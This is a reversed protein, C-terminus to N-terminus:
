KPIASIEKDILTDWGNGYRRNLEGKLQLARDRYQDKKEKEKQEAAFRASAIAAHALAEAHERSQEGIRPAIDWACRLLELLAEKNKKDGFLYAKGKGLYAGLMLKAPPNPKNKWENIYQDARGALSGWDQLAAMCRLVGLRADMQVQPDRDSVYRDYTTRAGKYDKNAEALDARLLEASKKWEDVKAAGKEMEKIVADAESTAGKARTAQYWLMLVDKAYFSDPTEKMFRAADDTVAKWDGLEFSCQIVMFPVAQTKVPASARQDGLAKKFKDRAEAFENNKFRAEADSYDFGKNDSDFEIERVDKSAQATEIGSQTSIYKVEKVNMDVIAGELPASGGKLHIKDIKQALAPSAAALTFVVAPLLNRM